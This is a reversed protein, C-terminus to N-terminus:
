FDIRSGVTLGQICLNGRTYQHNKTTTRSYNSDEYTNQNVFLHHEWGIFLTLGYTNCGCTFCDKWRLGAAADSIFRCACFHHKQHYDVNGTLSFFTEDYHNHYHGYVVSAAANGYLSFGCGLSWEADFGGRLGVARYDCKHELIDLLQINTRLNYTALERKQEIWVARVGIFPRLTFCSSVCFENGLEFDLIDLRLRHKSSIKDALSISDGVFNGYAPVIFEGSSSPLLTEISNRSHTHFDTWYVAVDWNCCPFNYGIGLRFAADWHFRDSRVNLDRAATIPDAILVPQIVRTGFPLGDECAKLYLFEADFFWNGCTAGDVTCEAQAPACVPHCEVADALLANANFLCSATLLTIFRQRM